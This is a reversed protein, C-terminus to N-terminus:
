PALWRARVSLSRGDAAELPALAARLAEPLPCAAELAAGEAPRLGFRGAHLFVRRCWPRSRGGYQVDGLLPFGQSSLHSRIQHLRGTRLRVEVLSLAEGAPGVLHGVLHVETEARVGDPSAASRKVRGEYVVKLPVDLLRSSPPTHGHCMCIYCKKVRGLYFELKGLFYGAYTMACAVIGSTGRDLRHLLGHQVSEDGAVPHRLGHQEVLWRELMRKSTDGVAENDQEQDEEVQYGSAGIDLHDAGVSVTWGAPKWLACMLPHSVLVHPEGGLVERLVRAAVAKGQLGEEAPRQHAGADLFDGYARLAAVGMDLAGDTM